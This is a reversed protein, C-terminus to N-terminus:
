RRQEVVEEAIEPEVAADRSSRARLLALSERVLGLFDHNSRAGIATIVREQDHWDEETFQTIRATQEQASGALRYCIVKLVDLSKESGYKGLTRVIEWRQTDFAEQWHQWLYEVLDEELEMVGLNM